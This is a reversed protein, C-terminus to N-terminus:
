NTSVELVTISVDTGSIKVINEALGSKFGYGNINLIFSDNTEYSWKLSSILPLM